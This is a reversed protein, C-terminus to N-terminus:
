TYSAADAEGEVATGSNATNDRLGTVDSSNLSKNSVFLKKPQRALSPFPFYPKLDLQKSHLDSKSDRM